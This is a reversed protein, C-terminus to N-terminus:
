QPCIQNVPEFGDAFLDDTELRVITPCTNGATDTATTVIYALGSSNTALASAINPSTPVGVNISSWGPHAADGYRTDFSSNANLHLVALNTSTGAVVSGVALIQGGAIPKASVVFDNATTGINPAAFGPAGPQQGSPNFTTDATGGATVRAFRYPAYTTASPMDNDAILLAGNPDLVASMPMVFGPSIQADTTFVGGVGYTNDLIGGADLRAVSIANEGGAVLLEGSQFQLLNALFPIDAHGGGSGSGYNMLIGGPDFHAVAGGSLNTSPTTLYVSEYVTPDTPHSQDLNFALGESHSSLNPGTQPAFDFCFNGGTGKGGFDALIKGDNGNFEMMLTCTRFQTGTSDYIGGSVVILNDTNWVVNHLEGGFPAASGSTALVFVGHDAFTTDWTGNGNLRGIAPLQVGPDTPDTARGVVLLKGDDQLTAGAVRTMKLASVPTPGLFVAGGPGYSPDLGNNAAAAVGACSALLAGVLIRVKLM